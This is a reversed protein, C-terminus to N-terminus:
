VGVAKKTLLQVHGSSGKMRYLDEDAAGLLKEVTDGDAPYVAVGVSVTLRPTELEGALRERIRKAVRQAMQGGAEPLVLAFEDGGYRAATDTVRSHIKIVHAVRMIARTGVLHGYQDNVSKLRDLDLLLVSFSRGSRDSREVENGLSEILTRYNALGTLSDSVAMSRVQDFLRANDILAGGLVVGYSAVKLAQALMSPGDLLNESQTAALHAAVGLWAMWYLSKDFASSSIRLRNRFGIAAAGFIAAPILDWPRALPWKSHISIQWPSILYAASTLYGAAAVIFFAAAIERGTDRSKPLQREVVLAVIVLIALVTRSVMWSLPVSTSLVESGTKTFFEFSGGTEILGALAFGLALILSIRDRTGRFRVIANAAFTLILMSGFLTLTAYSLAEFSLHLNRLHVTLALWGAAGACVLPWRFRILAQALKRVAVV